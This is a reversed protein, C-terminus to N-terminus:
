LLEVFHGQRQLYSLNYESTSKIPEEISLLKAEPYQKMITLLVLFYLWIFTMVLINNFKKTSIPLCCNWPWKAITAALVGVMVLGVFSWFDMKGLGKMWWNHRQKVKYFNGWTGETLKYTQLIAKHNKKNSIVFM